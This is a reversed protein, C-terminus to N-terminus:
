QPLRGDNFNQIAIVVYCLKQNHQNQSCIVYIYNIM